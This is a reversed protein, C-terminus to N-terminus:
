LDNLSIALIIYFTITQLNKNRLEDVYRSYSMAPLYIKILLNDEISHM